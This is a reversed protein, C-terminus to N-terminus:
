EARGGGVRVGPDMSGFVTHRSARGIPRPSARVDESLIDSWKTFTEELQNQKM